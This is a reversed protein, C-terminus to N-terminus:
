DRGHRAVFSVLGRWREILAAFGSQGPPRPRVQVRSVEEEAEVALPEVGFPASWEQDYVGLMIDLERMM